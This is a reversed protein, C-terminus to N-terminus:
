GSTPDANVPEIPLKRSVIFDVATGNSMTLHQRHYRGVPFRRATAQAVDALQYARLVRRRSAAHRRMTLVRVDTLVVWLEAAGPGEPRRAARVSWYYAAIIGACGGLVLAPLAAAELYIAGVLGLLAGAIMGLLVRSGTGAAYGAVVDRIEEGPLLDPQYFRKATAWLRRM